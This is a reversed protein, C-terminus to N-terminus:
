RYPPAYTILHIVNVAMRALRITLRGGTNNDPMTTAAKCTSLMAVCTAIAPFSFVQADRRQPYAGHRLQLPSNPGFTCVNCCTVARSQRALKSLQATCTPPVVRLNLPPGAKGLDIEGDPGPGTITVPQRRV